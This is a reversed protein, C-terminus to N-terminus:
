TTMGFPQRVKRLGFHDQFLERVGIFAGWRKSLKQLAVEVM